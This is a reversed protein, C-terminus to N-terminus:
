QGLSLVCIMLYTMREATEATSARLPTGQRHACIGQYRGQPVRPEWREPLATTREARPAGGVDGAPLEASPPVRLDLTRAICSYSM